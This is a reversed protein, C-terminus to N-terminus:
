EFNTSYTSYHSMPKYQFDRQTVKVNDSIRYIVNLVEETLQSTKILKKFGTDM